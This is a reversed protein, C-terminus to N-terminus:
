SSFDTLLTCLSDFISNLLFLALQSSKGAWYCSYPEPILKQTMNGFHIRMRLSTIKLTTKWNIRLCPMSELTHFFVKQTALMHSFDLDSNVSSVSPEFSFRVYKLCIVKSICLVECNVFGKGVNSDWKMETLPLLSYGWQIYLCAPESPAFFKAM